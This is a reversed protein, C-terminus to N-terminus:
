LISPGGFNIAHALSRLIAAGARRGRYHRM